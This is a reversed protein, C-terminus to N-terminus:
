TSVYICVTEKLINIFLLINSFENGWRRRLCLGTRQGDFFQRGLFLPPFYKTTKEIKNCINKLIGPDASSGQHGQFQCKRRFHGGKTTRSLSITQQLGVDQNPQRTLVSKIEKASNARVWCPVFKQQPLCTILLSLAILIITHHGVLWDHM